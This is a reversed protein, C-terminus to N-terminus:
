SSGGHLNLQLDPNLTWILRTGGPATFQLTRSAAAPIVEAGSTSAVAAVRNPQLTADVETTVAEAPPSTAILLPPQEALPATSEPVAAPVGEEPETAPRAPPPTVAIQPAQSTPTPREPLFFFMAALVVAATAAMLPLLRTRRSLLGQDSGAANLTQRRWTLLENRDPDRGDGAPDGARLLRGLEHDDRFPRTM